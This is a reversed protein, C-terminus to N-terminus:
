RRPRPVNPAPPQGSPRAASTQLVEPMRRWFDALTVAGRELVELDVREDPAHWHDTPLGTGFFVVPAGTRRTLFDAPGSGGNGMRGVRDAEFGIAMAAALAEVAPHDPTRYPAQATLHSFELDYRIGRLRSAAWREFDAAAAQPHQPAAIRISIEATATAPIVARPMDDTDGGTMSMVEIAPRAWLREPISFGPEGADRATETRAVWDDAEIGLEAYAERQADDPGVAPDAIGPVAVRGEEDHLAALLDVLDHIPNPSTGSVTGSHVATDPGHVTLTAGVMGRLATCVAPRKPDLLMTDSYLVLDAALDDAHADFLEGLHPSGLEEEGDILFRVNVGPAGHVAVHARLGLLHAAVQGKADSSGRGFLLGDRVVPEFPDTQRWREQHVPRVDHHSYVLVTPADPATICEAFVAFSDGQEWVETRPFGAARCEAALHEASWRLADAHEPSGVISPIRVWETLHEILATRQDAAFRRLGVASAGDM